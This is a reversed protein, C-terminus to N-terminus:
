QNFGKASFDMIPKEYYRYLLSSAIFTITLYLLAYAHLTTISLTETTFYYKMLQLIVGYHLLYISYSIKSIHVIPKELWSINLVTWQSLVPLFLAIAISNLPLYLVNWFFPFSQLSMGFSAIGVTLFLLLTLGVLALFMKYKIWFTQFTFHLWSFLVGIYIADLRFIVISKLGLNWQVITPTPHQFHWLFKTIWFVSIFGIVLWLFLKAKKVPKWLFIWLGLVVPLLFYAYEEISLSWSETFFPPMPMILNQQFFFYKWADVVTYGILVAILLNLLLVLYYNPLTRYWRRKLFWLITKLSFENQIFLKLLIGGILFGSLIFFVEVGLYGFWHFITVLSNSMPPYIWLIHSSLVMLIAIARMLDLGFIRPNKQTSSIM